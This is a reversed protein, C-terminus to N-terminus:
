KYSSQHPSLVLVIHAGGGTVDKVKQALGHGEKQFDLYVDAGMEKCFAEKDPHGGDIAM